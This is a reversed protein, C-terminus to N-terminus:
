KASIRVRGVLFTRMGDLHSQLTYRFSYTSNQLYERESETYLLSLLFITLTSFICFCKLKLNRRRKPNLIDTERSMWGWANVWYDDEDQIGDNINSAKWLILSRLVVCFSAHIYLFRIGNWHNGGSWIKSMIKGSELSSTWEKIM